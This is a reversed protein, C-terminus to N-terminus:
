KGFVTIQLQLALYQDGQIKLMKRYSMVPIANNAQNMQYVSYKLVYFIFLKFLIELKLFSIFNQFTRTYVINQM